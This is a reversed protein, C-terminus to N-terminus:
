KSGGTAAPAPGAEPLPPPVPLGREAVIEVARSVPIQAVGAARDVWAYSSVAAEEERAFKVMDATPDAQLAARTKEISALAMSLRAQTQKVDAVSGAGGKEREQLSGLIDRHAKANEEALFLLERQRYVELNAIVADLSLSEANDFVRYELSALRDKDLNIQSSAEGGDYLRQSLIASIEGRDDWDDDDDHWKHHKHRKHKKYHKRHHKDHHDCYSCYHERWCESHYRIRDYFPDYYMSGPKIGIEVLIRNWGNRHYRKYYDCVERM